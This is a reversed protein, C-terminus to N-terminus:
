AIIHCSIVRILFTRNDSYHLISRDSLNISTRTHKKAGHIFHIQYVSPQLASCQSTLKGTMIKLQLQLYVITLLRFVLNCIFFTTVAHQSSKEKREYTRAPIEERQLLPELSGPSSCSTAPHIHM